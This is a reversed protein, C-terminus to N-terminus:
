SRAENISQNVQCQSTYNKENRNYYPQQKKSHGRENTEYYRLQQNTLKNEALKTKGLMM